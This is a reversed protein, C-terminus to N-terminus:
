IFPATETLMLSKQLSLGWASCFVWYRLTTLHVCACPCHCGKFDYRRWFSTSTVPLSSPFRSEKLPRCRTTARRTSGLTRCVSESAWRYYVHYQCNKVTVFRTLLQLRTTQFAVILHKGSEPPFLPQFSPSKRDSVSTLYHDSMMMSFFFFIDSLLPNIFDLWFGKGCKLETCDPSKPDCKLVVFWEYYWKIWFEVANILCM